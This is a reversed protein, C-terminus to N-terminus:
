VALSRICFFPTNRSLRTGNLFCTVIKKRNADPYRKLSVYIDFLDRGKKRQYLARLKTGLMEELQYTPVQAEGQFWRTAVSFQHTKLGLISFHERTNIEVKLRLNVIPPIESDFRYKLTVRGENRERKPKGLWHDLNGRLADIVPGIPGSIRQVLDIDESYRAPKPLILKNLATGGRFALQEKLFDDSFIEIIARSLTLDQEIQADNPWPAKERWSTIAAQPIM